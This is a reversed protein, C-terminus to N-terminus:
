LAQYAWTTPGQTAYQKHERTPETATATGAGVIRQKAGRDITVRWIRRCIGSGGACGGTGCVEAYLLGRVYKCFHAALERRCKSLAEFQPDGVPLMGSLSCYSTIAGSSSYPRLVVQCLEHLMCQMHTRNTQLTSSRQATRQLHKLAGWCNTDTSNGNSSSADRRRADRHPSMWCDGAVQYARVGGMCVCICRVLCLM